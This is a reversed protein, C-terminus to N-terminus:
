LSGRHWPGQVACTMGSGASGDGFLNVFLTRGDPSFCAGAFESDNLRNVAFEFAEGRPSLGILRNVDTIGPALPHTDADGGSADDECLLIGGRPTALLNDPSDLVSGGTSEFFLTLTERRPDYQWVQGYAADGGSTSNFFFSHTRRDYWIGELRNFLAGGAAIGQAAVETAGGELDPDPDDIPIWVVALAAGETQGTIANYAPQGAIGLMELTGGAMLEDRDHPRYRYFGSDNGSDETEYVYGTRPDTAVAEHAFRGMATLPISEITGDLDSPVFFNYGHKQGWGATPGAVTEESTLWGEVRRRGRGDSGPGYAIGGACNVITGNLSVFEQVVEMRRTDFDVTTTGGVGLPDYKLESPGMVSGEPTGPATRVEHNRILRTTGRPGRFAAMGDHARPVTNGDSMTEGIKSFTVYSFGSPLALIADGNQDPVPALAGYGDGPRKVPKPGFRPSPQHASASLAQLGSSGILAGGTVAGTRLLFSRRTTASL